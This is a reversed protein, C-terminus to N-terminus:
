VEPQDRDKLPWTVIVTTGAGLESEYDLGYQPGYHLQLRRHVNRVGFGIPAEERADGEALSSRLLALREPAIGPGNDTVQLYGTGEHAWGSIRIKGPRRVMKVGHYIANEVLPQLTLKVIPVNM